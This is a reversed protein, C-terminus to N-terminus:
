RRIPEDEVYGLWYDSDAPPVRLCPGEVRVVLDRGERPPTLEVTVEGASGDPDVGAEALAASFRAALPGPGPFRSMAITTELRYRFDAFHERDARTCGVFGARQDGPPAAEGPLTAALTPVVAEALERTQDRSDLLRSQAGADVRDTPDAADHSSSGHVVAWLAIAAALVLLTKM